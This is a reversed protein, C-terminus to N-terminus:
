KKFIPLSMESMEIINVYEINLLIGRYLDTQMIANIQLFVMIHSICHKM